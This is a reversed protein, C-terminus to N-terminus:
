NLDKEHFIVRRVTKCSVLRVPKTPELGKTEVIYWETVNDIPDCVKQPQAAWRRSTVPQAM